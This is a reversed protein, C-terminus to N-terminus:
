IVVSKVYIYIYVSGSTPPALKEVFWMKKTLM